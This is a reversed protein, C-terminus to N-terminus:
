LWLQILGCLNGERREDWRRRRQLVFGRFQIFNCETLAYESLKSRRYYVGCNLWSYKGTTWYLNPDRIADAHWDYFDLEMTYRTEPVSGPCSPFRSRLFLKFSFKSKARIPHDPPRSKFAKKQTVTYKPFQSSSISLILQM